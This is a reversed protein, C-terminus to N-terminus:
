QGAGPPTMMGQLGQAPDAHHPEAFQSPAEAPLPASNACGAAPNGPPVYDPRLWDETYTLENPRAMTGVIPNIGLPPFNMQRNKVIPALYQVCLKASQEANM